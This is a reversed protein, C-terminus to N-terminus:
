IFKELRKKFVGIARSDHDSAVFGKGGYDMFDLVNQGYGCMFDGIRDYNLALSKILKDTSRCDISVNPLEKVNFISLYVKCGRGSLYIETINDEDTLKNLMIKGSVLFTPIQLEIIGSIAKALNDYSRDDDVGAKENFYDFGAPFPAETYLVDADIYEKPLDQTVIDSTLIVGKDAVFRMCPEVDHENKAGKLASNYMKVM